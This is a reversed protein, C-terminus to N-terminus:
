LRISVETHNEKPSTVYRLMWTKNEIILLTFNLFSSKSKFWALNWLKLEGPLPFIQYMPSPLLSKFHKIFAMGVIKKRGEDLFLQWQLSSHRGTGLSSSATKQNDRCTSSQIVLLDFFSIIKDSLNKDSEAVCYLWDQMLSLRHYHERNRLTIIFRAYQSCSM